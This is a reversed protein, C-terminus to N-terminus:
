VFPPRRIRKAYSFSLTSNQIWDRSLYLNPVLTWYNQKIEDAALLDFRILDTRELRAGAKLFYKEGLAKSVSAYTAWINETYDFATTRDTAQWIEDDLQDSQLLNNRQIFTIKSGFEVKWDQPLRKEVDLQLAYIDTRDSSLNRETIATYQELDYDSVTLNDRESSQNSYDAFFQVQSNLSDLIWTYNLTANYLNTRIDDEFLTIGQDLLQTQETLRIQSENDFFRQRQFGFIEGGITHKDNLELVGGLRLNHRRFSDRSIMDNRFLREVSEYIIRNDNISENTNYTYNYNAYINWNDKGYDLNLNTYAAYFGKGRTTYYNRWNALLGIPKRKLIINIVGGSSEADVNASLNNQIQISQIDESRLTSLYNALDDSSWNVIRGNILITAREQRMTITGNGDVWIHPARQLIELGDYGEKMPSSAVHFVLKDEVQEIIPRSERVTVGELLNSSLSLQQVGIDVSQELFLEFNLDEYGIFSVRIQYNGSQALELQFQGLEDTITGKQVSSLSDVVLVSAFEIAESTEDQITGTLTFQASSFFPFLLLTCFLIPSKM